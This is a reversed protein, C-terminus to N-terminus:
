TPYKYFDSANRHLIYKPMTQKTTNKPENKINTTKQNPQNPKTPQKKNKKGPQWLIEKEM